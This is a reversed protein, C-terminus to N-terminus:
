EPAGAEHLGASQHTVSLAVRFMIIPCGGVYVLDELARLGPVQGDLLRRPDLEDDVQLGGLRDPQGNRLLQDQLRVFHDLSRKAPIVAKLFPSRGSQTTEQRDVIPLKRCPGTM